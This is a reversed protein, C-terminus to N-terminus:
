SGKDPGGTPKGERLRVVLPSGAAEIKTGDDLLLAASKEHDLWGESTPFERWDDAEVAVITRGILRQVIDSLIV